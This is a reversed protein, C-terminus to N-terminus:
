RSCIDMHHFFVLYRGPHVQVTEPLTAAYKGTNGQMEEQIDAASMKESLLEASKSDFSSQAYVAYDQTDATLMEKFYNVPLLTASFVRCKKGTGTKGVSKNVPRCLVIEYLIITRM